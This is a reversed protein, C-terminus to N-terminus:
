NDQKKNMDLYMLTAVFTMIMKPKVELIDEFTLFVAAGIKRAVTLLYKANGEKDKMSAGKSVVAYDVCGDEVANVLDLLYCSDALSLDRFQVMQRSKGSEQVKNNSWQIIDSDTVKRGDKGLSSLMKLQQYRM